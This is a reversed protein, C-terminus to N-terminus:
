EFDAKIIRKVILTDQGLNSITKKDRVDTLNLKRKNNTLEKEFASLEVVRNGIMFVTAQRYAVTIKRYVDLEEHSGKYDIIPLDRLSDYKNGKSSACSSIICIVAGWFSFKIFEKM